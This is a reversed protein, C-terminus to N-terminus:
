VAEYNDLTFTLPKADESSNLYRVKDDWKYGVREGRNNFLKFAPRLDDYGTLVNVKEFKWYVDGPFAGYLGLYGNRSTDLYAGLYGKYDLACSIRFYLAHEEEELLDFHLKLRSSDYDKINESLCLWGTGAPTVDTWHNFARTVLLVPEPKGSDNLCMLEATFSKNMKLPFM